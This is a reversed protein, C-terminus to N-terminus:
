TPPNGRRAEALMDGAAVVADGKDVYSAETLHKQTYDNDEIYGRWTKSAPDFEAGDHWKFYDTTSVTARGSSSTKGDPGGADLMEHGRSSSMTGFPHNAAAIPGKTAPRLMGDPPPDAQHDFVAQTPM